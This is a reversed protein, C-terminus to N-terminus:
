LDASRKTPWRTAQGAAKGASVASSLFDRGVGRM